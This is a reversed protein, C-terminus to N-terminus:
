EIILGIIEIQHQKKIEKSILQYYQWHEQDNVFVPILVCHIDKTRIYENIQDCSEASFVEKFTSTHRYVEIGITGLKAELAESRASMVPIHYQIVSCDILNINCLFVNKKEMTFLNDVFHNLRRELTDHESIIMINKM